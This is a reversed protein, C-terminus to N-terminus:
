YSRMLNSILYRWLLVSNNYETLTAGTRVSQYISIWWLRFSIQVSLPSAMDLSAHSGYSIHLYLLSFYHSPFIVKSSLRWSLTHLRTVLFVSSARNPSSRAAQRSQHFILSPRNIVHWSMDHLNCKISNALPLQQLNKFQPPASM